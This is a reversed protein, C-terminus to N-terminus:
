KKEVRSSCTQAANHRKQCLLIYKREQKLGQLKQRLFSTGGETPKEAHWIIVASILTYAIALFLTDFNEPPETGCEKSYPFHSLIALLGLGTTAYGVDCQIYRFKERQLQGEIARKKQQVEELRQQFQLDKNNEISPQIFLSTLMLSILLIKMEKNISTWTSLLSMFALLLKKM